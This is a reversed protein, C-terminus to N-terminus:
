PVVQIISSPGDRYVEKLFPYIPFNGNFAPADISFIIYSIRHTLLFTKMDSPSMNQNYFNIATMVRTNYDAVSNGQGMFVYDHTFVPILMSLTAGALVVSRNPTNKDLYTFSRTLYDPIYFNFYSELHETNASLCANLYPPLVYIIAGVIILPILILCPRYRDILYELGCTALLALPIYQHTKFEQMVGIDAFQFVLFPIVAWLFLLFFLPHVQRKITPFLFLLSLFAVPGLSLWYTSFPFTQHFHLLEQLLNQQIWPYARRMIIAYFGYTVTATGVISTTMLLVSKRLRENLIWLTSGYFVTMLVVLMLHYPHLSAILITLVSAIIAHKKTWPMKAMMLTLLIIAAIALFHHPLIIFKRYADFTDNWPIPVHFITQGNDTSTTWISTSTIVLIFATLQLSFTRFATRILRLLCAFFVTISIIRLIYLIVVPSKTIPSLIFGFVFYVTQLLFPPVDKESYPIKYLIHGETGSKIFYLVQNFDGNHGFTFSYTTNPPTRHWEVINPYFSGFIVLLSTIIFILNHWQNQKM